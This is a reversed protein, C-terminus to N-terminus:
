CLLSLDDPCLFWHRSTPARSVKLFIDVINGAIIQREMKLRVTPDNGSLIITSLTRFSLVHSLISPRLTQVSERELKSRKM